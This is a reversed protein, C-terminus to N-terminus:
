FPWIDLDFFLSLAAGVIAWVWWLLFPVIIIVALLTQRPESQSWRGDESEEGFKRLLRPTVRTIIQYTVVVYAVFIAASAELHNATWM